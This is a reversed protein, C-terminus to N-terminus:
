KLEILSFNNSLIDDINEYLNNDNFLKIFNNINDIENKYLIIKM